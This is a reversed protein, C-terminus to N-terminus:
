SNFLRATQVILDATRDIGLRSTNLCLDYGSADGWRRNTYFNYFGARRRDAREVLLRAERESLHQGSMIRMIRDATDATLFVSLLDHRDRLVYDAARGVFLCNGAEALRRIPDSQLQFLKQTDTNLALTFLGLQEDARLFMDPSLGSQRAAELILEKDYYRLGLREAVRRGAARGGAALQRGITIIM